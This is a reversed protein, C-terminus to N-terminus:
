IDLGSWSAVLGGLGGRFDRDLFIERESGAAINM